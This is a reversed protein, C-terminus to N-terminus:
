LKLFTKSISCKVTTEIDLRYLRNQSQPIPPPPRCVNAGRMKKKKPTVSVYLFSVIKHM